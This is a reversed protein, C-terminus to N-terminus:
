SPHSQYPHQRFCIKYNMLLRKKNQHQLKNFSREQTQKIWVCIGMSTIINKHSDSLSKNLSVVVLRGVYREEINDGSGILLFLFVSEKIM